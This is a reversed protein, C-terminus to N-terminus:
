AENLAFWRELDDAARGLEAARTRLLVLAKRFAGHHSPLTTHGSMWRRMTEVSVGLDRALRM